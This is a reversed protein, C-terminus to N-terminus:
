QVAASPCQLGDWFKPNFVDQGGPFSVIDLDVPAPEIPERRGLGGSSYKWEVTKAGLPRPEADGMIKFIGWLGPRSAFTFAVAGTKIRAKAGLDKSGPGSPWSFQKQFSTFPYNQGDIELELTTDKFRSDLKQRLTYYVRPQTAGAPYFADALSQARNLFALMDQTVQPKKAPDKSKWVSGEKAVFEALSQAQFRWLAGKAPDIMGTLEDLSADTTSNWQFPFEHLTNRESICFTRLERNVKDAGAKGFDTVIFGKTNRIPEELIRQVTEDLKGVGVAKFGRSMQRVTDLAKDYNQSAAQYVAPDPNRTNQAIDQMSKRLQALADMYAMNKDVVWTESGPPEVWQVPQFSRTVDAPSNLADPSAQQPAVAAKADNATKGLGLLKKVPALEKFADPVQGAPQPFNTQNSTMALVALLPSRHDSLIELKRAADEAGAYGKVHFGEVFKRWQEAYDRLFMGQIAQATEANQKLEGVVGGSQGVVCADGAALTKDQKSAKEVYTWGDRSFAASVEAPGNLVQTYNPALDALRTTKPVNKEASVLISAYARDIGKAKELYRRARERAAADEPLRPLNGDPLAAAYFDIQRDALAQWDYGNNPAIQARKDKLSKSVYASDPACSGSTIMLHTKLVRYVPEYPANADPSEPLGEMESVMQSTLDILLLERFRQFYAKRVSDLVRNGSYLGWHYSWPLGDQLKVLEARLADLSQLDGLTALRGHKAIKTGAADSVEHLLQRNQIWSVFFAFCLLACVGCIAALAIQRYRDVPRQVTAATRMPQDALVVKHFVDAVFMWRQGLPRRLGVGSVKLDTGGGGQLIQTADGRFLQTAAMAPNPASLDLRTAGLDEVAAVEGERVGTLYYGRLVPRYGLTPRFVDTLFQVLPSRIRKLERPFEYVSPRRTRDPEHALQALRRAAVSQYLPRFSATLRKAEAEAFVEGPNTADTRGVPVTCGFVQNVETEPLRHFFDTYFPIKDCKTIVQYVPYGAGFVEAISRLREQWDRSYREFKQPDSPAGTFEKAECFGIVGRFEMGQPQDKLLRRWMPVSAGGRLPRLLRSWQGLDGSFALGGIEVFIAKKALWINAVRTSVVATTGAVQGALLQPEVGSNVFTSTKGSGAPGVLLYMPLGSLPEPGRGSYSPVKALAANATAILAVMSEDGQDSTAAPKAAPAAAPRMASKARWLRWWGFVRAGIIFALIAILGLATWQLGFHQAEAGAYLYYAGVWVLCVYLFLCFLLVKITM